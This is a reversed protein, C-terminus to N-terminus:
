IFLEGSKEDEGPKKCLGEAFVEDDQIIIGVGVGINQSALILGQRLQM